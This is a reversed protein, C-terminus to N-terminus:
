AHMGPVPRKIGREEAADWFDAEHIIALDSGMRRLEMAREVKRGYCSFAWSANGGGCVVLYSLDRRVRPLPMGGLREVVDELLIREGFLSSGTVCFRRERFEVEPCSACVGYRVHDETFPADMIRGPNPDEFERCFKLLFRHEEPDVEGDALVGTVLSDIEDYPWHGRLNEASELWTRVGGLEEETVKGDAAIGVLLGHLRQMDRTAVDFFPNATTVRQTFWLIDEKEEATLVSDAISKRVRAILDAFAPKTTLAMHEDCWRNLAAVEEPSIRSDLGIGEILGQLTSLDRGLRQPGTYREYDREGM